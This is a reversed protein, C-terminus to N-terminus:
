FWYGCLGFSCCTWDHQMQWIIDYEDQWTSSHRYKWIWRCVLFIHRRWQLQTHRAFFDTSYTSDKVCSMNFVTGVKRCLMDWLVSLLRILANHEHWSFIEIRCCSCTCLSSPLLPGTCRIQKWFHFDQALGQVESTSCSCVLEFLIDFIAPDCSELSSM